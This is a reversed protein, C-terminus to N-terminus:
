PAPPRRRMWQGLEPGSGVPQLRSVIVFVPYARVDAKGCGYRVFRGSRCAAAESQTARSTNTTVGGLESGHCQATYQVASTSKAVVPCSRNRDDALETTDGATVTVPNARFM